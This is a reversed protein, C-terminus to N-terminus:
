WQNEYDYGGQKNHINEHFLRARKNWINANNQMVNLMFISNFRLENATNDYMKTSSSM